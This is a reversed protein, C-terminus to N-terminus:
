FNFFVIAVFIANIAFCKRYNMDKWDCKYSLGPKPSIVVCLVAQSSRRNYDSFANAQSSTSCHLPGCYDRCRFYDFNWNWTISACRLFSHNWFKFLRMSQYGQFFQLFYTVLHGTKVLRLLRCAAEECTRPRVQLGLPPLKVYTPFAKWSLSTM